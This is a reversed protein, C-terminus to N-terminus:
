LIKKIKELVEYPVILNGRGKGIRIHPKNAGHFDSGGSLLLGHRKALAKMKAEDNGNNMSYIAELGMLGCDKLDSVLQELQAPEFHYLLPHALIPIGGANRILSVADFPSIKERAVYCKCGDGLYREFVTPLDKVQKTDVLYRAFHARTLVSDPFTQLLINLTVDFGEERLRAAMKENRNDRNDRFNALIENLTTDTDRIYLGVMHVEKGKYDCSLEVGPIFEMGLADAQERAAAIGGTTDHDTLAMAALGSEYGLTVVEKPTLTGDSATSHVHLDIARLDNQKNNM